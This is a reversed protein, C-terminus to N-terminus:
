IICAFLAGFYINYSPKDFILLCFQWSKIIIIEIVVVPIQYKGNQIQNWNSVMFDSYCLSYKCQVHVIINYMYMNQSIIYIYIKFINYIIYFTVSKACCFSGLQYTKRRTPM